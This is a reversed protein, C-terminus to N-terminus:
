GLEAILDKMKLLYKGYSKKFLWKALRHCIPTLIIIIVLLILLVVPRYLFFEISKGSGIMGGLMFGAAASIPYIFLGAKLQIKRWREFDNYIHLLQEKLSLNLGTITGIDRYLNYSDLLIWLNFGILIGFSLYMQWYKLMSLLVVYVITILVAWGMGILLNYRLKNVPLKSSQRFVDNQELLQPLLDDGPPMNKWTDEINM